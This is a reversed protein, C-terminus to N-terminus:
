TRRCSVWVNTEGRRELYSQDAAPVRGAGVLRPRRPSITPLPSLRVAFPFRNLCLKPLLRGLFTALLFFVFFGAGTAAGAALAVL